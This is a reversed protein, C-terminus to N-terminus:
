LLALTCLGTSCEGVDMWMRCLFCYFTEYWTMKLERLQLNCFCSWHASPAIGCVTAFSHSQLVFNWCSFCNLLTYQHSTAWFPKTESDLKKLHFNRVGIGHGFVFVGGDADAGDTKWKQLNHQFPRIPFVFSLLLLIKLVQYELIKM